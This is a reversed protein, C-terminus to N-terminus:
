RCGNALVLAALNERMLSLYDEASGDVLGEIPDLVATRIGLDDALTEALKPSALRETFVTTIKDTRILDSLEALHRASPEADPSIGAISEFNLGYRDLYGFAEHSVVVTKRDCAALKEGYELDLKQMDLRVDMANGVYTDRNSPDVKALAAAVADGLDAMLYPDLWFHPNDARVKPANATVFDKAAPDVVAVDGGVNAIAEDLAPQFGQMTVVVDAQAVDAVQRPSLETDHPEVGPRTLNTVTADTGAVRQAVYQLPYFGTVVQLGEGAGSTSCAALPGTLVLLLAVGLRKLM